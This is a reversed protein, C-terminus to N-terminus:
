GGGIHKGTAFWLGAPSRGLSALSCTVQLWLALPLAQHYRGQGENPERVHGSSLHEGAEWIGERRELSEVCRLRVGRFSRISAERPYSNRFDCSRGSNYECLPPSLQTAGQPGDRTPYSGNDAPETCACSGLETAPLLRLNSEPPSLGDSRAADEARSGRLVSRKGSM